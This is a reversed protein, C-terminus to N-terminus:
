NATNEFLSNPEFSDNVTKSNETKKEDSNEEIRSEPDKGQALLMLYNKLYNIKASDENFINSHNKLDPCITLITDKALLLKSRNTEDFKPFFKSRSDVLEFEVGNYIQKSLFNPEEERVKAIINLSEENLRNEKKEISDLEIALDLGLKRVKLELQEGDLKIRLPLDSYSTFDIV